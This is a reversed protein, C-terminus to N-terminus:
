VVNNENRQKDKPFTDAQLFYLPCLPVLHVFSHQFSDQLNALYGMLVQWYSNMFRQPLLLILRLWRLTKMLQYIKPPNSSKIGRLRTYHDPYYSNISNNISSSSSSSLWKLRTRSQAVGHVAAWWAGGDRPNELCSYQLPTGNGEGSFRGSQPISGLDGENCASAPLRKLRQAVLFGLSVYMVMHLISLLHSNETHSLSSLGPSQSLRSKHFLSPPPLSAWTPPSM